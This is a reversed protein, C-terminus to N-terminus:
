CGECWWVSISSGKETKEVILQCEPDDKNILYYKGEERESVGDVQFLKTMIMLAEQLAVGGMNLEFVECDYSYFHTYTLKDDPTIVREDYFEGSESRGLVSGKYNQILYKRFVEGPSKKDDRKIPLLHSLYGDFVFGVLGEYEVKVWNGKLKEGRFIKYPDEAPTYDPVLTISFERSEIQEPAVTVVSGRPIMALIKADQHPEDRLNLYSAWNFLLDGQSYSVRTSEPTTNAPLDHINLLCIMTILFCMANKM